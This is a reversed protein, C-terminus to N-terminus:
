NVGFPHPKALIRVAFLSFGSGCLNRLKVDLKYEHGVSEADIYLIKEVYPKTHDLMLLLKLTSFASFQNFYVSKFLQLLCDTSNACITRIIKRKKELGEFKTATQKEKM